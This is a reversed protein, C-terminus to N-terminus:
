DSPPQYTDSAAGLFSGGGIVSRRPVDFEHRLLHVVDDLTVRRTPLHKRGFDIARIVGYLHLHPWTVRSRGEPHWHYALLREGEADHLDYIYGHSDATWHRRANPHPAVSFTHTLEFQLENPRALRVRRGGQFGAVYTNRGRTGYHIIHADTVPALSKRLEQLFQKAADAASRAAM